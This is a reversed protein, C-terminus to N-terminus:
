LGHYKMMMQKATGDYMEESTFQHYSLACLWDGIPGRYLNNIMGIDSRAIPNTIHTNLTIVPIGLWVAELAAASADTIVCYWDTPSENLMDWVSTRTKKNDEKHKWLVPMDTCERLQRQVRARWDQLTTGFLRYHRESSEVVLIKRGRSHWPRPFSELTGLRDAPYDLHPLAHHLHDSVLRHFKKRGYLFNTYGSDMFWFPLKRELRERLIDENDLTNRVFLMSTMRSNYQRRTILRNRTGFQNGVTKVLGPRPDQVTMELLRDDDIELSDLKDRLFAILLRYQEKYLAKVQDMIARLDRRLCDNLLDPDVDGGTGNKKQKHCKYLYKDTSNWSFLMRQYRRTLMRHALASVLEDDNILLNM